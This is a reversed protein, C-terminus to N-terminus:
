EEGNSYGYKKSRTKRLINPTNVGVVIRIKVDSLTSGGGAKYVYAGHHDAKRLSTPTNLDVPIAGQGEQVELHFQRLHSQMSMM